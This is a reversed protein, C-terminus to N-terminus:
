SPRSIETKDAESSARVEDFQGAWGIVKARKLKPEFSTIENPGNRKDTASLSRSFMRRIELQTAAGEVNQENQDSARALNDGLLVQHRADPLIDHDIIAAEPEM